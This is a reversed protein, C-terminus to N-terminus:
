PQPMAVERGVSSGVASWAQPIELVQQWDQRGVAFHSRSLSNGQGGGVM